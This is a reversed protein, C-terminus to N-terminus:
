APVATTSGGSQVGGHVHGKLSKGGGVADVTATMTGAIDADESVSLAGNITVDGNVTLGDPVEIMASGGAPLTARLVHTEDDYEVVAGDKYRTHHLSPSSSPPAFQNSYLGRLVLGGVTDGDISFVTVQEGVSPASWEIREGAYPVLWPLYDTLLQGCQVRCTAADLDVASVTGIRIQNSQAANTRHISDMGQM